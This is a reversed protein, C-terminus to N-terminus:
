LIVASGGSVPLLVVIVSERRRIASHGEKLDTYRDSFFEGRNMLYGDAVL